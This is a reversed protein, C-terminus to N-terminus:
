LWSNALPFGCSLFVDADTCKSINSDLSAAQDSCTREYEKAVCLLSVSQGVALMCLIQAKKLLLIIVDQM